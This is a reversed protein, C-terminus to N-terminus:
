RERGASSWVQLCLLLHGFLLFRLVINYRSGRLYNDPERAFWGVRSALRIAALIRSSWFFLGCFCLGM